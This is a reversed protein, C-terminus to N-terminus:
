SRTCILKWCQLLGSDSVFLWRWGRIGGVMDMYDTIVGALLGSLAGAVAVSTYLWAFRSTLEYKKYWSSTPTLACGSSSAWSVGVQPLFYLWTCFWSRINRAPVAIGDDAQLQTGRGHM